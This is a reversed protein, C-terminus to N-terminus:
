PQRYRAATQRSSAQSGVTRQAAEAALYDAYDPLAPICVVEGLELGRISADVLDEPSMVREPPFRDFGHGGGFETRTLGPTLAQVSLGAAGADMALSRTFNVVYAKTGGYAANAPQVLFALGSAVNVITGSGRPSMAKVAAVTLRTLATVNLAIMAVLQDADAEALPGYVGFGANNVLMDIDPGAALRAEVTELDEETELDAVLVEVAVGSLETALAELRDRRRAVLVLDVGDRALRRAYAAGIGSSAGTILARTRRAAM